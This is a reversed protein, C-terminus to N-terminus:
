RAPATYKNLVAAIEGASMEDLALVVRGIARYERVLTSPESIFVHGDPFVDRGSWVHVNNRKLLDKDEFSHLPHPKIILETAQRAAITLLLHHLGPSHGLGLIVVIRLPTNTLPTPDVTIRPLRVVVDAAEAEEPAMLQERFIQADTKDFLYAKAVRRLRTPFNWHKSFNGHQVFVRRAATPLKDVLVAWRDLHNAYVLTEAGAAARQLLRRTLHWTFASRSYLAYRGLGRAYGRVHTDLAATLSALVDGRRLFDHLALVPIGGADSRCDYQDLALIVGPRDCENLGRIFYGIRPHSGVAVIDTGLVPTTPSRSRAAARCAVFCLYIMGMVPWALWLAHGFVNVTMRGGPLRTALISRKPIAVGSGVEGHLRLLAERDFEVENLAADWFAVM